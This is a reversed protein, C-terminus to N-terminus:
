IRQKEDIERYALTRVLSEDNKFLSYANINVMDMQALVINHLEGPLFYKLAVDQEGLRDRIAEEHSAYVLEEDIKKMCITYESQQYYHREHAKVYPGLSVIYPYKPSIEKGRGFFEMFAYIAVDGQLNAVGDFAFFAAVYPSRSWDLLPSPFGHHRLYIMFDYGPLAAPYGDEVHFTDPISWDHGLLSEIAPKVALMTGYYNRALCERNIRRELTTSLNWRSDVHGRFLPTSVGSRIM